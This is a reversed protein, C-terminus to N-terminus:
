FLLLRLLDHVSPTVLKHEEYTMDLQELHKMKHVFDVLDEELIYKGSTSVKALPPLCRECLDLNANRPWLCMENAPDTFNPQLEQLSHLYLGNLFDGIVAPHTKVFM